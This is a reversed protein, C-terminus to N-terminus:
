SWFTGTDIDIQLHLEAATPRGGPLGSDILIFPRASRDAPSAHSSFLHCIQFQQVSLM